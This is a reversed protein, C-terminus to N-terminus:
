SHLEASRRSEFVEQGAAAPTTAMEAGALREFRTRQEATGIVALLDGAKLGNKQAVSRPEIGTIEHQM